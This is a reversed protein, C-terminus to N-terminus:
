TLQARVMIKAKMTQDLNLHTDLHDNPYRNPKKLCRSEFAEIESLAQVGEPDTIKSRAATSKFTRSLTVNNSIPHKGTGTSSGRLGFGHTTAASAGDNYM